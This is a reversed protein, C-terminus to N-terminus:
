FPANRNRRTARRPAKGSVGFCTIKLTGLAETIGEVSPNTRKKFKNRLKQRSSLTRKGKVCLPCTIRRTGECHSCVNYGKYEIVWDPDGPCVRLTGDECSNCAIKELGACSLCPGLSSPENKFCPIQLQDEQSSVQRQFSGDDKCCVAYFEIVGNPSVRGEVQFSGPGNMHGAMQFSKRAETAQLFCSSCLLFVFPFFKFM